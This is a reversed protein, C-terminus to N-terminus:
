YKKMVTRRTLQRWRALPKSKGEVIESRRLGAEM